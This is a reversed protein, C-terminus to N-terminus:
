RFCQPFYGCMGDEYERDTLTSENWLSNWFGRAYRSLTCIREGDNSYLEINCGKSSITGQIVRCREMQQMVTESVPICGVEVKELRICFTIGQELAKHSNEVLTKLEPPIPRIPGITSLLVAGNRPAAPFGGGDDAYVNYLPFLLCSAIAIIRVWYRDRVTCVELPVVFYRACSIYLADVWTDTQSSALPATMPTVVEIITFRGQSRLRQKLSGLCMGGHMTQISRLSPLPM